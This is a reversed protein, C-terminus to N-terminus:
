PPQGIGHTAALRPAGVRTGALHPQALMGANGVARNEIQKMVDAAGQLCCARLCLNIDSTHCALSRSANNKDRGRANVAASGYLVCGSGAVSRTALPPLPECTVSKSSIKLNAEFSRAQCDRRNRYFACRELRWEDCPPESATVSQGSLCKAKVIVATDTSYAKRTLRKPSFSISKLLDILYNM